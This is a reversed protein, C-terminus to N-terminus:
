KTRSAECRLKKVINRTKRSNKGYTEEIQKRASYRESELSSNTMKEDIMKLNM